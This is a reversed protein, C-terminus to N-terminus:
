RENIGNQGNGPLLFYIPTTWGGGNFALFETFPARLLLRIADRSLSISEVSVLLSGWM